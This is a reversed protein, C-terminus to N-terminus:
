AMAGRRVVRLDARVFSTAEVVDGADAVVEKLSEGM